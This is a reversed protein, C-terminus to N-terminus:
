FDVQASFKWFRPQLVATPTLWTTPTPSLAQNYSLVPASNTINYLDFGVNTRTRGFRLIKAIRLDVENIRDGYLTGPEVLNVTVNPANNSLPRGLSPQVLANSVVWNAALAGGQDSRFTGSLLVDVKPITYSGLGTYRTVFGTSTNCWPNTPSEEPVLARVECNDTRTTGSNIGGQFVLGNRPRASINFLLGHSNQSYTGYDSSLTQVQNVLSAVNPNANYFGSFVRGSADAPLRSDVPATV